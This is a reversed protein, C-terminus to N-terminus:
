FKSFDGYIWQCKCIREDDDDYVIMITGKMTTDGLGDLCIYIKVIFLIINEYSNYKLDENNEQVCEENFNLFTVLSGGANVFRRVRHNRENRYRGLAYIKM